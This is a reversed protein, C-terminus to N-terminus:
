GRPSARRRRRARPARSCSVSRCRTAGAGSVRIPARGPSRRPDSEAVAALGRYSRLRGRYAEYDPYSITAQAAGSPLQLMVNVLTSPDRADLPRAVFAKYATFVATNVGIGLALALVSVVTFRLHRRLARAGYRLDQLVTEFLIM